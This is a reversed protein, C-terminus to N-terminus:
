HRTDYQRREFIGRRYGGFVRIGGGDSAPESSKQPKAKHRAKNKEGAM